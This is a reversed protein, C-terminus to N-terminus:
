PAFRNQSDDRIGYAVPERAEGSLASLLAVSGAPQDICDVTPLGARRMRSLRSSAVLVPEVAICGFRREPDAKLFAAALAEVPPGGADWDVNADASGTLIVLHSAGKPLEGRILGRDALATLDDGRAIATALAVATDSRVPDNSWASESMALRHVTAGADGLLRATQTAAEPYDSADLLVVSRAVLRARGWEPVVHDFAQMARDNERTRRALDDVRGEIRAILGSQRDVIRSGVFTTGILIGIGLAMFVACLTAVHFRFEANM